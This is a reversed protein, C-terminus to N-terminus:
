CSVGALENLHMNDIADLADQDQSFVLFAFGRHSGRSAEIQVQQPQQGEVQQQRRGGERPMKVDLIEGFASFTSVLVEEDVSQPLGGVYVTRSNGPANSM